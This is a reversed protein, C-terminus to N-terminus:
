AATYRRTFADIPLRWYSTYSNSRKEEGKAPRCVVQQGNCKVVDVRMGKHKGIRAVWRSGPKVATSDIM